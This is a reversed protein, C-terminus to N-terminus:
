VQECAYKLGDEGGDKITIQVKLGKEISFVIEVRDDYFPSENIYRGVIKLQKGVLDIGFKAYSLQFLVKPKEGRYDIIDFIPRLDNSMYVEFVRDSKLIDYVVFSNKCRNKITNIRGIIEIDERTDIEVPEFTQENNNNNNNNNINM